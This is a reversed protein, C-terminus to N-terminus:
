TPQRGSRDHLDPHAEGEAQWWQDSDLPEQRNVVFSLSQMGETLICRLVDGPGYATCSAEPRGFAIVTNDREYPMDCYDSGVQSSDSNPDRHSQSHLFSIQEKVVSVAL